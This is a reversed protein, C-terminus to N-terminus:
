SKHGFRQNVITTGYTNISKRRFSFKEAILEQEWGKM